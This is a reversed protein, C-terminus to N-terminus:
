QQWPISLNGQPSALTFVTVAFDLVALCKLGAIDGLWVFGVRSGLAERLSVSTVYRVM